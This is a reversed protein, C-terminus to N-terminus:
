ATMRCAPLEVVPLASARLCWGPRNLHCWGAGRAVRRLRACRLRWWRRRGDAREGASVGNVAACLSLSPLPILLSTPCFTLRSCLVAGAPAGVTRPAAWGWRADKGGGVWFGARVKDAYEDLPPLEEKMGKRKRTDRIIDFVKNGPTFPTGNMLQWHDFSCQPFAKGGTAARLATTFGFSENVPVFARIATMPTGPRPTEEVIEGRRLSLTQYVGGADSVPVSIEAVYMPEM